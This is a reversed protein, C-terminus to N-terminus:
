NPGNSQIQYPGDTWLKLCEAWELVATSTVIATSVTATTATCMNLLTATEIPTMMAVASDGM